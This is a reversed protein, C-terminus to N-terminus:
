ILTFHSARVFASANLAAINIEAMFLKKAFAEHM